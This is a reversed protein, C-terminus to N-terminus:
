GVKYRCVILLDIPLTDPKTPDVVLDISQRAQDITVRDAEPPTALQVELGGTAVAKLLTVSDADVRFYDREKQVSVKKRSFLLPFRRRDVDLPGLTRKAGSLLRHWDDPFDQRLSFLNFLSAGAAPKLITSLAGRAAHALAVGGERATYRVHLIVDRVSNPDLSNSDAALEVRWRSIVGRGEFPLYREDRLDTEFLGPDNQASSTVISQATSFRDIFRADDQPVGQQQKRPYAGSATSSVRISSSQLTLTCNVSAYPGVVCPITVSVNKIRRMYHGPYDLDFAWEPLTFECADTRRLEVLARPNLTALSVHKTIEYERANSDLFAVEMRKLDNYLHEGALLGRRLEDWYGFKVFDSDNVGLEERYARETRKAVSHALRYADFFLTALKGIQWDALQQNTFKTRLFVEVDQSNETQKRHNALEQEAIAKRIEAAAIQRDIQLLDAVALNHQLTWEDQRRAFSGVISQRNAQYSANSALLNFFSGVAGAASGAHSGGWKVPLTSDPLAHLIGSLVNAATGILTFTNAAELSGLQKIEHESLALDATGDGGGGRTVAAPLYELKVPAGAGGQRGLTRQYYSLRESASDRSRRLGELQEDAEEVQKQRVDEILPALSLEHRQRLLSLAEGDRRELAALLSAGLSKLETTLETAKQALVGFRYHPLSAAADALVDAIDVGAARARILLAPDIPPDFLAPIRFRGAIDLCHRINFLRDEVVKWYRLLNENSGFCFYLMTGLPAGASAPASGSLPMFSSVEVAIAGIDSLAPAQSSALEALSRYTQPAARARRPVREPRPGLIQHALLYLQTAENLSEITHRAFLQDGWAICNDLSAMVVKKMLAVIRLRAIAWPNFPDKRLVDLQAALAAPDGFLDNLTAPPADYFPKFTWCLNPAFVSAGAATPNYVYQLWRQADAFRQNRMLQTAIALPVHFFLEWNYPEFAEGPGFGVREVPISATPLSPSVGSMFLNRFTAGGDTQEQLDRRLVASEDAAAVAKGYEAAYPHFTPSLAPVNAASANTFDISYRKPGIELFYTSEISWKVQNLPRLRFTGPTRPVLAAGAIEPLYLRDDSGAAEIYANGSWTTNAPLFPQPAYQTVPWQSAVVDGGRDVSFVGFSALETSTSVAPKRSFTYRLYIEQMLRDSRRTAQVVYTHQTPAAFESSVYGPLTVTVGWRTAKSLPLPFQGGAIQGQADTKYTHSLVNGTPMPVVGSPAVASLAAARADYIYITADRIPTGASEVVTPWIVLTDTNSNRLFPRSEVVRPRLLSPDVTGTTITRVAQCHLYAGTVSPSVLFAFADSIERSEDRPVFMSTRSVLKRSWGRKANRSWALKIELQKPLAPDSATTKPVVPSILPWFVYTDTATAYPLVYDGEIDLELRSWPEWRASRLDSAGTARRYYHERPVARTRGVVHLADVLEGEVLERQHYAGIIELESLQALGDLYDAVAKTAAEASMQTQLLASEIEEFLPSKDDRLTPELWNEPHLFVKRNAEWVRYQKRWTNWERARDPLVTVGPELNMLARQVFTQVSSMAARIRSTLMCAAMQTDLLLYDFLHDADRLPTGDWPNPRSLVYTVLADRRRERLPDNVETAIELWRERGVKARVGSKVEAAVTDLRAGTWTGGSGAALSTSWDMVVAPSVGCRAAIRMRELLRVYLQPRDFGGPFAPSGTLIRVQDADWGRIRAALTSWDAHTALPDAVLDLLELLSGESSLFGRYARAFDVLAQVADWAVVPDNLRAPLQTLDPAGISPANRLLWAGASSPLGLRALLLGLKHLRRVVSAIPSAPATSFTPNRVFASPLGTAANTLLPTWIARCARLVAANLGLSAGLTSAAAADSEIRWRAKAIQALAFACRQEVSRTGDLLTDIESQSAFFANQAAPPDQTVTAPLPDTALAEVAAKFAAWERNLTGSPFPVFALLDRRGRFVLTRRDADFRLALELERPLKLNPPMRELPVALEPAVVTTVTTRAFTRPEDFLAQVAARFAATSGPLQLTQLETPTLAGQVTLIAAAEDFSLRSQTALAAVPADAVALATSYLKRDGFFDAVDRADGEPWGLRTLEVAVVDPGAGAPYELRVLVPRTADVLASLVAAIEASTLAPSADLRGDDAFVYRADSAQLGTDALSDLAEIFRLPMNARDLPSAQPDSAFPEFGLTDAAVLLDDATLSAWRAFSAYRNLKSLTALTLTNRETAALVRGDNRFRELDSETIGLRAALRVRSATISASVAAPDDVFPSGPEIADPIRFAEDYYSPLPVPEDGSVDFYRDHDIEGLWGALERIELGTGRRLREVMSVAVLADRDITSAALAVLVRDLDAVSWGLRRRLRVFRHIKTALAVGGNPPVGCIELKALECMAPDSGDRSAIFLRRGGATAADIPNLFYSGLLKLLEVYSLGSRELFMPVLFVAAEWPALVTTGDWDTIAQITNRPLGWFDEPFDNPGGLTITGPGAMKQGAIIQFETPSLGLYAGASADRGENPSTRASSPTSPPAFADLLEHPRVDIRALYEDTEMWALDFPMTWPHVQHALRRYASAITHQPAARLEDPSGSTQFAAAEVRPPGGNQRIVYLRAADLVHWAKTQSGSGRLSYAVAARSLVIGNSSGAFAQRVADSVQGADLTQGTGAPLDFPTFWDPAVLIELLENVLDVYPIQTNTNDCTLAIELLDGRRGRLVDLPSLPQQTGGADELFRLSDFLYAAPSTISLCHGCECLDLPGFTDAWTLARPLARPMVPDAWEKIALAAHLSRETVFDARRYFHAVLEPDGLTGGYRASFERFPIVGVDIASRFGDKVLKSITDYRGDVPPTPEIAPEWTAEPALDPLLRELRQYAGILNVTEDREEVDKLREDRVDDDVALFGAIPTDLLHFDPNNALFTAIDDRRAALPNSSADDRSLEYLLKEGAYRREIAEALTAAYREPDAVVVPSEPATGDEPPTAEFRRAWDRRDLKVLEAPVIAGSDGLTADAVVSELLAANGGSLRLFETATALRERIAPRIRPAGAVATWFGSENAGHELALDVIAASAAPTAGISRLAVAVPSPSASDGSGALFDAARRDALTEVVAPVADAFSSPVIRAAVAAEVRGRVDDPDRAALAAADADPFQTLLAYVVGARTRADHEASEVGGRAPRRRSRRGRKTTALEAAIRFSRILRAVDAVDHSTRGSIFAVDGGDLTDDLDHLAAGSGATAAEVDRLIWAYSPPAHSSDLTLGIAEDTSSDFRVDSEAVTNGDPDVVRVRLNVAGRSAGGALEYPIRYRGESNTTDGGLTKAEDRFRTDLAVVGLGGVPRGDARRVIGSVHVTKKRGDSASDADNV